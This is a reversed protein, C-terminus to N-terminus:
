RAFEALRAAIHQLDLRGQVVDHVFPEATDEDLPARLPHNNLGLFFWTATWALRKNGDILPHGRGLSEMLAAAKEWVGPYADEGFVSTQPRAAASALIGTDRVALEGAVVRRAVVMLDHVTLYDIV